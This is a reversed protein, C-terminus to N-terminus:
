QLIHERVVTVPGLLGSAHLPTKKNAEKQKNTVLTTRNAEPRPQNKVMWEPWGKLLGNPMAGTDDPYQEDGILRNHWTNAVRVELLNEGERLASTIDTSFPEKWLVGCDVNNVQVAAIVCVKGLNLKVRTNNTLGTWKFRTTYVATGSFYNVDKNAHKSWDILANFTLDFPAGQYTPKFHVQWTASDLSLPQSDMQATWVQLSGDSRKAQYSGPTATVFSLTGAKDFYTMANDDPGQLSVVHTRKVLPKRFVVFLSGAAPLKLPVRTSRELCEFQAVEIKAGTSADWFEPQRGTVRFEPSFSIPIEQQNSVFYLDFDKGARHTYLVKEQASLFDPIENLKEFVQELSHGRFVRGKRVVRDQVKLTLDAGWIEKAAELVEADCDPYEQLSPSRLFPNGVLVMGKKVLWALQEALDPTMTECPPLVLVRYRAGLPLTLYGDKCTSRMLIEKNIFDFDYGKPRAPELLGNMKPTDEGFFYAVDARRSGQQLLACSRRLYDTWGKGYDKFWTSFRNFDAGFWPVLGPAVDYPQHSYLHLVFHNVGETFCWDGRTKMNAPTQAFNKGSTFAEASVRDKGYTNGCSTALRCEIDGLTGWLWYEGGIDDSQGGYQLSEGPFGWHGYNELWPILNHRNAVAKLGGVYNVAILDAVLRRWDWLFRDTEDRSGVVLGNLCALWPMPDYGYKKRFIKAMDDTWNQPGVEYSDLTIHQFGKRENKPIRRLFEGMMADFHKEVAKRSMKDCELGTAQPPTPSCKVETSAMGIRSIVWDNGAPAQWKLRGDKDMSSTITVIQKVDVATGELVEPMRPWLFGDPPPVPEPYMRGLQKEVGFDVEAASSFVLDELVPAGSMETFTLRLHTVETPEFSFTFPASVLPGMAQMLNTRYLKLDRIKKAKGNTVVELQGALKVKSSGWDMVLTQLCTPMLFHLDIVLPKPALACGKVGKRTGCLLDSLGEVKVTSEVRAPRVVVGELKPVPYAIVGVDQIAKEHKDLVEDFAAGGRIRTDASVLYRMSEEPKMWPGGSQSWGPGNFMGIRVGLRDGEKVAFSVLEWWEPSLIAVDGEPIGDSVIHGIFVEGIGAKKMAEIDATIGKASVNNNLWYWYMYPESRAPPNQFVKDLDDAFVPSLGLLLAFFVKRM